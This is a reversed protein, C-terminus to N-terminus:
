EKVIVNKGKQKGDRLRKDALAILKETCNAEQSHAFGLTITVAVKEDEYDLVYNKISQRIQETLQYGARQDMKLLLLVEDGGWRCVEGRNRVEQRIVYSLNVLLEDACVHGWEDNIRKFGDLDGLVVCYNQNSEEYQRFVEPMHQRNRMHTLPDFHAYFDLEENREELVEQTRRIKVVFYTSYIITAFVCLLFNICFIGVVWQTSFGDYRNFEQIHLCSCVIIAVDVIALAFDSLLDNKQKNGMSMSMCYVIPIIMFGYLSFGYGWGIYYNCLVSHIIVEAFPLLFWRRVHQIRTIIFVFILYMLVSLINYVALATIHIHCFFLFLVMHMGLSVILMFRFFKRDAGVNQICGKEEM